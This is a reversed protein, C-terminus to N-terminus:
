NKSQNAYHDVSYFASTKSRGKSKAHAEVNSKRQKKQRRLVSPLQPHVITDLLKEFAIRRLTADKIVAVQNELQLLKDRLDAEM